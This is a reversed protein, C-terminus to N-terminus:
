ILKMADKYTTGLNSHIDSKLYIDAMLMPIFRAKLRESIAPVRPYCSGRGFSRNVRDDEASQRNSGIFWCTDGYDNANKM